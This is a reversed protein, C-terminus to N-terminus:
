PRTHRTSCAAQPLHLHQIFTTAVSLRVASHRTSSGIFNCVWSSYGNMQRCQAEHIGSTRSVNSRWPAPHYPIRRSGTETPATSRVRSGTADMPQPASPRRLRTPQRESSGFTSAQHIHPLHLRHRRQRSPYVLLTDGKVFLDISQQGIIARCM